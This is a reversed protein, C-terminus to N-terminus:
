EGVPPSHGRSWNRLHVLLGCGMALLVATVGGDPLQWLTFRREYIVGNYEATAINEGVLLYSDLNQLEPGTGAAMPMTSTGNNHIFHKGNVVHVAPLVTPGDMLWQQYEFWDSHPGNEEISIHLVPIALATATTLSLLASFLTARM